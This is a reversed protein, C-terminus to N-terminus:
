LRGRRSRAITLSLAMALMLAGLLGTEPVSSATKPLKKAHGAPAAGASSSGKSATTSAGGAAAPAAGPAGNSALTAKLQRETIVKPTGTTVITASLKDGVRLDTINVPKGDKIIEVNRKSMDGESFMKIGDASRVIVSNGSKQVVEGSKVETIHVPTVTTKTTLTATGKMGPQLEHVSVQKGDVTFRMDEPVAYEKAGTSTKVVVNNGEVAVVEFKKSETSTTTSQAQVASAMAAVCFGAAALRWYPARLHM